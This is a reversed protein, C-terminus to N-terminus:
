MQSWCPNVPEVIGLGQAGKFFIWSTSNQANGLDSFPAKPGNHCRGFPVAKCVHDDLISSGERCIWCGDQLTPQLSCTPLCTFVPFMSSNGLFPQFINSIVNSSALRVAQVDVYVQRGSKWPPVASIHMNQHRILSHHRFKSCPPKSRNKKRTVLVFVVIKWSFVDLEFHIKSKMAWLCTFQAQSEIRHSWLQQVKHIWMTASSPKLM